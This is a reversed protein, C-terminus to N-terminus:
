QPGYFSVRPDSPVHLPQNPQDVTTTAQAAAPVGNEPCVGVFKLEPQTLSARPHVTSALTAKIAAPVPNAHRPAARTPPAGLAHEPAGPRTSCTATNM